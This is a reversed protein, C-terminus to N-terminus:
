AAGRKLSWLRERGVSQAEVRGARELRVLHYSAAQPTVGLLAALERGGLPGREQLADLVRQQTETPAPGGELPRAGVPYFRRRLGDHRTAVHGFRALTRLQHRLAGRGLGTARSLDGYTAGPHEALAACIRARSDDELLDRARLRSYLRVFPAAASRWAPSRLLAALLMALATFGLALGVSAHGGALPGVAAAAVALPPGAGKPGSAAAPPEARPQAGPPDDVVPGLPESPLAPSPADRPAPAADWPPFLLGLDVPAGGPLTRLLPPLAVPVEPATANALPQAMPLDVGGAAPAGADSGTSALTLPAEPLAGVPLATLDVQASALPAALLLALLWPGPRM